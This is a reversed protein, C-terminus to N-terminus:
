KGSNIRRKYEALLDADDGVIDRLSVKMDGVRVLENGFMDTGAPTPVTAQTSTKGRVGWNRPDTVGGHQRVAANMRATLRAQNGYTTLHKSLENPDSPIEGNGVNLMAAQLENRIGYDIESKGDKAPVRSYNDLWDNLVKDRNGARKDNFERDSNAQMNKQGQARLNYDAIKLKADLQKAAAEAAKQDRMEYMAVRRLGSARANPDTISSDFADFNARERQIQELAQKDGLRQPTMWNGYADKGYGLKAFEADRAKDTEAESKGSGSNVILQGNKDRGAYIKQGNAGEIVRIGTAATKGNETKDGINGGTVGAARLGRVDAEREFANAVKDAAAAAKKDLKGGVKPAEPLLGRDLGIPAVQGRGEGGALVNANAARIAEIKKPDTIASSAEAVPVKVEQSPHVKRYSKLADGEAGVIGRLGTGLVAGGITGAVPAVGSGVAATVLPVGARYVDRGAQKVKDWNSVEPDKYFDDHGASEKHADYAALGTGAVAAATGAASRLSPVASRVETALNRGFQEARPLQAPKATSVQEAALQTPATARNAAARARVENDFSTTNVPPQQPGMNPQNPMSNMAARAQNEMAAARGAAGPGRPEALEMTEVPNRAWAQLERPKVPAGFEGGLVAARLGQKMTPGVPEGTSQELYDDLDVGHAGALKELAANQQKNVIREGAGVRIEEGTEAVRAPVNDVGGPGEIWGDKDVGVTGGQRFGLKKDRADAYEASLVQKQRNLDFDGIANQDSLATMGNSLQQRASLGRLSGMGTDLQMGQKAAMGGLQGLAAAKQRQSLGSGGIGNIDDAKAKLRELDGFRNQDELAHTNAVVDSQTINNPVAAPNMRANFDKMLDGSYGMRKNLDDLLGGDAYAKRLGCNKM